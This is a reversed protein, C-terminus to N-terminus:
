VLEKNKEDYLFSEGHGAYIMIQKGYFKNDILELSEKLKSNSGGPLKIVTKLNKIITDGTFLSNEILICVCGDSHGPTELFQISSANWKLKSSNTVTIDSHYTEFGIQNYFVSMNKKKDIIKESCYKSCVIKCNFTDKLKNVGWIHDFHEHTLIIYEPTLNYDNLFGILEYCDETGPDIVICSKNKNTYLVYSNSDIPKNVIKKISISM